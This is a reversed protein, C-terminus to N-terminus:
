RLRNRRRGFLPLRPRSRSAGAELDEFVGARVIRLNEFPLLGDVFAYTLDADDVTIGRTQEYLEHGLDAALARRPADNQRMSSAILDQDQSVLPEKNYLDNALEIEDEERVGTVQRTAAFRPAYLCVRNSTVIQTEGSPTDFQAITDAADLGALNGDGLIVVGFDRDGGDCLYEDHPRPWGSSDAPM